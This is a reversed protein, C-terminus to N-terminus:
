TKVTVLLDSKSTRLTFFSFVITKAEEEEILQKFPLFRTELYHRLVAREVVDDFTMDLENEILPKTIINM